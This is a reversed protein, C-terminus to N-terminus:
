DIDAVPLFEYAPEEYPHAAILAKKVDAALAEEVLLELRWEPVSEVRGKQGIYPDSGELPRFQGQGLTQWCCRDYAGQRGAGAEFLATKLSEMHKEPVYVVLKFTM